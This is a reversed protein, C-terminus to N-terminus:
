EGAQINKWNWWMLKDPDHVTFTAFYVACRFVYLMCRDIHAARLECLREYMLQPDEGRIDAKSHYGLDVLDHAIRRGVGPITQLDTEARTSVRLM